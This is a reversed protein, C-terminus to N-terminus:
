VSHAGPASGEVAFGRGRERRRARYWRVPPIATLLPLLWLPLVLMVAWGRTDWAVLWPVGSRDEFWDRVHYFVDVGFTDYKFAGRPPRDNFVALVYGSVTAAWGNSEDAVPFTLRDVRFFSRGVLMASGVCVVASLLAPFRSM